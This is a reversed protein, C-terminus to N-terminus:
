VPAGLGSRSARRAPPSQMMPGSPTLGGSAADMEAVGTGSEVKRVVQLFTDTGERGVGRQVDRLTAPQADDGNNRPAPRTPVSAHRPSLLGSWVATPGPALPCQLPPVLDGLADLEPLLRLKLGEEHATPLLLKQHFIGEATFNECFM